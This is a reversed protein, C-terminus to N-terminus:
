LEKVELFLFYNRSPLKPAVLPPIITEAEGGQWRASQIGMQSSSISASKTINFLSNQSFWADNRDAVINLSEFMGVAAYPVIIADMLGAM